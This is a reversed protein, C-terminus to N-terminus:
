TVKVNINESFKVINFGGNPLFVKLTTSSREPTLNACARRENTPSRKRDTIVDNSVPVASTSDKNM